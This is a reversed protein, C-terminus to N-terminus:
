ASARPPRRATVELEVRAGPAPIGCLLTTNAPRRADFVERLVAAVQGLDDREVLFVRCRVVDDLGAGAEALVAQIIALANRTQASASEPMRGTAPDTGVTGSVHVYLDDVVARSYAALDEFPSGSSLRLMPM